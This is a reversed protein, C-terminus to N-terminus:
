DYQFSAQSLPRFNVLPSVLKKEPDGEPLDKIREVEMAKLKNKLGTYNRLTKIEENSVGRYTLEVRLDESHLAMKLKGYRKLGNTDDTRDIGVNRQRATEKKNVSGREVAKKKLDEVRETKFHEKRM